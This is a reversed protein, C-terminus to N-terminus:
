SSSDEGSRRAALVARVFDEPVEDPVVADPHEFTAKGLAMARTFSNLYDRCERCFLLHIRFVLWQGWPLSGDLFDGIFEELERCTIMLPGKRQVFGRLRRTWPASM